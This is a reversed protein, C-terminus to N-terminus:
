YCRLFMTLMQALNEFLNRKEARMFKANPIKKTKGISCLQARFIANHLCCMSEILFFSLEVSALRSHNKLSFIYILPMQKSMNGTTIQTNLM